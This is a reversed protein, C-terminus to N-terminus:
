PGRRPAALQRPHRQAVGLHCGAGESLVCCQGNQLRPCMPNESCSASSGFTSIISSSTRSPPSRPPPISISFSRIKSALFGSMPRNRWTNHRHRAPGSQFEREPERDSVQHCSAMIFALIWVQCVGRAYESWHGYLRGSVGGPGLALRPILTGASSPNRGHCGWLSLQM